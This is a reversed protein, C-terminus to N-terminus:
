AGSLRRVFRWARQTLSPENRTLWRGDNKMGIYIQCTTCPIDDREPRRGRLMDRAYSMKEGNISTLLGDRFANAPGFDGWFNRCCGLVKGDWNIQPLDWLQHCISQMYDVGRRAKFEGRSAAGVLSRLAEEDQIPSFDPDWSLKVVFRMGLEEALARAAPIEHENHGFAVFQWTMEPTTSGYAQKFRNITRIHDLVVELRGRVRYRAYTEQTAGDISCNLSRFRYKVLGELVEPRVFNLNVGNEASLTVGRAHAYEIMGLLDPNLFIEGYNSLEIAKLWPNADVIDKFHALTLFGSGVVPHIDKTTTPCAPCRLQCHSSAELRIQQPRVRAM